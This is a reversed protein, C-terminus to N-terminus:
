EVGFTLGTLVWLNLVVPRLYNSELKYAFVMVQHARKRAQLYQRLFLLLFLPTDHSM